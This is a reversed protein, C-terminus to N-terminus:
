IQHNVNFPLIRSCAKEGKVSSDNQPQIIRQHQFQGTYQLINLLMEAAVRMEVQSLWFCRGVNDCTRQPPLIVIEGSEHRWGQDKLILRDELLSYLAIKLFFHLPFNDLIKSHSLWNIKYSNYNLFIFIFKYYYILNSMKFLLVSPLFFFFLFGFLDLVWFWLNM